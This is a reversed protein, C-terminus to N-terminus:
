LEWGSIANTYNQFANTLKMVTTSAMATMDMPVNVAFVRNPTKVYPKCPISLGRPWKELAASSLSM